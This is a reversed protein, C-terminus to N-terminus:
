RINHKLAMSKKILNSIENADDETLKSEKLLDEILQLKRAQEWLAKRAVESWKIETHKRIITHLDEPIALTMNTM